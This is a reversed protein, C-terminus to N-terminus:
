FLYMRSPTVPESESASDSDSDSDSSDALCSFANPRAFRSTVTDHGHQDQKTKDKSRLKDQRTQAFSLHFPLSSLCQLLPFLGLSLPVLPYHLLAYSLHPPPHQAPRWLAFADPSSGRLSLTCEQFTDYFYTCMDYLYTCNLCKTM